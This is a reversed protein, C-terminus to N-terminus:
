KTCQALLKQHPGLSGPHLFPHDLAHPDIGSFRLVRQQEPNLPSALQWPSVDRGRRLRLIKIGELIHRCVMATPRKKPMGTTDRVPPERSAELNQRVRREWISWLLLAILIVYGLAELRSPTKIFFVDAWATDKLFPFRKEVV